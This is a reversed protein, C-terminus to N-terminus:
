PALVVVLMVKSTCRGGDYRPRWRPAERTGHVTNIVRKSVRSVLPQSQYRHVIIFRGNARAQMARALVCRSIPHIFPYKRKITPRIPPDLLSYFYLISRVLMALAFRSTTPDLLTILFCCVVAFSLLLVVVVVVITCRSILSPSYSMFIQRRPHLFFGVLRRERLYACV